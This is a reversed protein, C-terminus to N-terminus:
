FRSMSDFRLDQLEINSSCCVAFEIVEAVEDALLAGPRMGPKKGNFCTDVRGPSITCVRIGKQRLELRLARSMGLVASKSTCYAVAEPFGVSDADSSINVITATGPYASLNPALERCLLFLATVNIHMIQEWDGSALQELPAFKGLGASNVLARISAHTKCYRAFDLVTNMESFDGCYSNVEPVGLERCRVTVADLRNADRGALLLRFEGRRALREAIGQGIGSSAGTVIVLPTGADPSLATSEM